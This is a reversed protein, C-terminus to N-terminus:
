DPAGPTEFQFLPQPRGPMFYPSPLNGTYREDYFNAPPSMITTTVYNAGTGPPVVNGPDLYSRKQIIVPESPAAVPHHHARRQSAEAPAAALGAGIVALIPMIVPALRHM